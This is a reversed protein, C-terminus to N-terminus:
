LTRESVSIQFLSFIPKSANFLCTVKYIVQKKWVRDGIFSIKYPVLSHMQECAQLIGRVSRRIAEAAMKRRLVENFYDISDLFHFTLDFAMCQASDAFCRYM